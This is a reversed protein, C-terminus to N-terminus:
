ATIAQSIDIGAPCGPCSADVKQVLAGRLMEQENEELNGFGLSCYEKNLVLPCFQRFFDPNWL